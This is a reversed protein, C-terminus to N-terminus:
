PLNSEALTSDRSPTWPHSQKPDREPPRGTSGGVIHKLADFMTQSFERCTFIGICYFNTWGVMNDMIATAENDQAMTTYLYQDAVINGGQDTDVYVSGQFPNSWTPDYGFSYSVYGGNPDGVNISQHLGFGAEQPTSGEVWIDHGSPDSWRIPNQNGWGGLTSNRDHYAYEDISLFAGMQPSWWRARMDYVGGAVAEFWRGKWRLPQDIAPAPTQADAAFAGGFANYRYGGLDAGSSDRVRRVNGALDLEYLYSSGGRRLRLPHDVGDFLYADKTAATADIKAVVNAGDFVYFEQTASSPSTETHGRAVRRLLSDYGLTESVTNGATTFTSGKIRGASNYSFTVGNLSTVQGGGNLTVTQGGLTNPLAADATGGGSLKPRQDDLTVESMAGPDFTTKLAGLANYTYTEVHETTGNVSRTVQKLRNLADYQYSDTGGYPDTFTVPNGAGDYAATYCYSQSSYTYCRSKLRGQDDYLHVRVHGDPYAAHFSRGATDYDFTWTENQGPLTVAISQVLGRGDYTFVKTGDPGTYRQVSGSNPYYAYTQDAPVVQAGCGSGYRLVHNVGTLRGGADRAYTYTSTPDGTCGGAAYGTTDTMDYTGNYNFSALTRGGAFFSAVLPTSGDYTRNQTFFSSGSTNSINTSSSPQGARDLENTLRYAIDWLQTYSLDFTADRYFSVQAPYDRPQNYRESNRTNM